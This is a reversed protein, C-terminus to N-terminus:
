KNTKKNKSKKNKGTLDGIVNNAIDKLGKKEKDTVKGDKFIDVVDKVSEKTSESLNDFMETAKGGLPGGSKKVKDKILTEAVKGKISDIISKGM